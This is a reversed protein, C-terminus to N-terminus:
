IRIPYGRNLFHFWDEISTRNSENLRAGDAPEMTIESPPSKPDFALSKNKYGNAGVLCQVVDEGPEMKCEVSMGDTSQQWEIRYISGGFSIKPGPIINGRPDKLIVSFTAARTLQFDVHGCRGAPLTIANTERFFNNESAAVLTSGPPLGNLTYHGNNATEATQSLPLALITAGSVPTGDRDLVTGEVCATAPKLKFDKTMTAHEDFNLTLPVEVRAYGEKTVSVIPNPPWSGARIAYDGKLDCAAVALPSATGDQPLTFALGPSSRYLSVIAGPLPQDKESTIKGTLIYQVEGGGNQVSLGHASGSGIRSFIQSTSKSTDATAIEGTTPNRVAGPRWLFFWFVSAVALAILLPFWRRHKNGM